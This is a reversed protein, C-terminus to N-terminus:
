ELIWLHMLHVQKNKIDINGIFQKRFPVYVTRLTGEKTFKVREELINCGESISVEILDGAGGELVDTITGITEVPASGDAVGYVLSCGKLDGVYWEDKELHSAKERPLVLETGKLKQAEEVSDIGALKLFIMGNVFTSSEVKYLREGFSNRLTVQNMSVLHEYKGSASEVKLTGALGHTGRIYGVVFQEM